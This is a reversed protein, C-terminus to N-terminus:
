RCACIEMSNIEYRHRHAVKPSIGEMLLVMESWKISRFGISNRLFIRPHYRREELHKYYIVYGGQEYHLIKIVLRFKGVFIYVDGNSPDFDVMQVQGSLCNVGMRM